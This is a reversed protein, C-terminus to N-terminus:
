LSRATAEAEAQEIWIFSLDDTTIRQPAQTPNELLKELDFEEMAIRALKSLKDAM